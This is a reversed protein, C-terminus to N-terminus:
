VTNYDIILHPILFNPPIPVLQKQPIIHTLMKWDGVKIKTVSKLGIQCSKWSHLQVFLLRGKISRLIEMGM